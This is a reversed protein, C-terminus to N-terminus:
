YLTYVTNCCKQLINVFAIYKMHTYDFCFKAYSKESHNLCQFDTTFDINLAYLFIEIQICGTRHTNDVCWTSKGCLVLFNAGM